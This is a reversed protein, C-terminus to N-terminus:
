SDYDRGSGAAYEIADVIYKIYKDSVIKQKLDEKKGDDEKLAMMEIDFMNDDYVGIDPITLYELHLLTAFCQAVISKLKSKGSNDLMLQYMKYARAESNIKADEWNKKDREVAERIEKMKQKTLTYKDSNEIKKACYIAKHLIESLSSLALCFEFTWYPSVFGKISGLSYKKKKNNIASDTEEQRLDINNKDSLPKVDCDTVVSVPVGITENNERAFIRSYRLFSLSGVNVLSVGYKELPFGIIEAITPVVLNEADGEVMIIGKAFFMNAKTVDLFRQLFLYDGKFLKTNSPSLDYGKRNKLLILNQLNIKSALVASHTSIIIQVGADRYETQLYKILRLQAQPHLHAELEEILLLKLTGEDGQRMLLLEAAIFLLNLQGLGPNVEENILSLSELIGKLKMEASVIKVHSKGDQVLLESLTKRIASLIDNGKGIEFYREVEDNAQKLIEVLRNKNDDKFIPHSILIQSIRSNRGLRMEHHADRLPKLYVSRLLDRVKAELAVGNALGGAKLESYIRGNEKWARFFLNLHFKVEGEETREFTLYEVFNKAEDRTFGDFVLNIKLEDVGEGFEDVFFDSDVIRIFENSQTLLVIKIADVIATKGSDNEGILANLGEHFTVSLGPCKDISKFQRFDFLELKALFM